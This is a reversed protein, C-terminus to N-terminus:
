WTSKQCGGGSSGSVAKPTCSRVVEGSSTRRVTFTHHKGATVAVSTATVEYGTGAEIAKADSLYPNGNGPAIQISSEYEKLV